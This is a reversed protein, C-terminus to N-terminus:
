SVRRSAGTRASLADALPELTALTIKGAAVNPLCVPREPLAATLRRIQKEAARQRALAFHAVPLYPQWDGPLDSPEARLRTAEPRTFRFPDVANV